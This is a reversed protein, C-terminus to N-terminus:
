KEEEEYESLEKWEMTQFSRKLYEKGGDVSLNGCLCTKFDHVTESEITEGCKLCKARNHLIGMKRKRERHLVYEAAGATIM